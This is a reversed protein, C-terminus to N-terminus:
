DSPLAPTFVQIRTTPVGMPDSGGVILTAGSELAVQQGGRARLGTRPEGATLTAIDHPVLVGEGQAYVALEDVFWLPSPMPPVLLAPRDLASATGDAGLTLVLADGTPADGRMGGGCLVRVSESTGRDLQVCRGGTWPGEPGLALGARVLWVAGRADGTGFVVIDEGDDGDERTAWMAAAGARPADLDPVDVRGALLTGGDRPVLDIAVVDLREGGGVLTLVQSAGDVVWAAGPRDGVADAGDHEVDIWADEGPDFRHARLGSAWAVRMVGGNADGVLAGDDAAPPDALPDAELTELTFGDIYSTAGTSSLMVVGRGPAAAALLLDDPLDLVLPFTSLAGPEGLFLAIGSQAAGYTFEATQGWALLTDDQALYLALTRLTDDPDLELEISFDLGDAVGSYSAGDPALVAAVNNAAELEDADEPVVVDIDVETTVPQCAVGVLGALALRRM